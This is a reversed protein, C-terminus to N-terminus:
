LNNIEENLRYNKDTIIKELVEVRKSLRAIDHSLDNDGHKRAIQLKKMNYAFSFVVVLIISVFLFITLLIPVAYM